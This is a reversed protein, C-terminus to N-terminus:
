PSVRGAVDADAMLPPTGPSRDVWVEYDGAPLRRPWRIPDGLPDRVYGTNSRVIGHSETEVVRRRFDIVLSGDAPFDAMRYVGVVGEPGILTVRVDPVRYESWLTITPVAEVGFDPRPLLLVDRLWRDRAVFRPERVPAPPRPYPLPEAFEDVPEPTEEAVPDVVEVSAVEVHPVNSPPSYIYPDGATIIFELEAWAGRTMHERRRLITPGGTIRANHYQRWQKDVCAKACVPDACDTAALHPCCAYLDVVSSACDDTIDVSRLWALGFDLACDSAAIAVARVTVTRETYRLPGLYAGNVVGPTIAIKRTSDDANDLSLGMVGLFELADLNSGDGWWPPKKVDLMPTVYDDGKGEAISECSDCGGVWGLGAMRAYERVRHTNIVEKGAIALYGTYM